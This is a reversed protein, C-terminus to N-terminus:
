SIAFLIINSVTYCLLIVCIESDCYIVSLLMFYSSCSYMLWISSSLNHMCLCSLRLVESNMLLLWLCSNSLAQWLKTVGLGKTCEGCLTVQSGAIGRTMIIFSVLNDPHLPNGKTSVLLIHKFWDFVYKMIRCLLYIVTSTKLHHTVWLSMLISHYIWINSNTKSIPCTQQPLPNRILLMQLDTYLSYVQVHKTKMTDVRGPM